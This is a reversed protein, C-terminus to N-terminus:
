RRRLQVITLGETFRSPDHPLRKQVVGIWNQYPQSQRASKLARAGIVRELTASCAVAFAVLAWMGATKGRSAM